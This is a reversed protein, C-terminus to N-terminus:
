VDKRYTPLGVPGFLRWSMLKYLLGVTKEAVLRLRDEKALFQSELAEEEACRLQLAGVYV